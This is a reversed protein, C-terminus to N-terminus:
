KTQEFEEKVEIELKALEEKTVSGTNELRGKLDIESLLFKRETPIM